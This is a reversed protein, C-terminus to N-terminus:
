ACYGMAALYNGRPTCQNAQEFDSSASAFWHINEKTLEGLRQSARGRAALHDADNAGLMLSENFHEWAQRYDGAKFAKWGQEYAAQAPPPRQAIGYGGAALAGSLVLVMAATRWPRRRMWRMARNPFRLQRQLERQVEAASPRDKPDFALCRELLRALAPEVG